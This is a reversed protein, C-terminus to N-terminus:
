TDIDLILKCGFPLDKNWGNRESDKVIRKVYKFDRGIYRLCADDGCQFFVSKMCNQLVHVHYRM